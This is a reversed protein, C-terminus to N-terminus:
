VAKGMSSCRQQWHHVITHPRGRPLVVSPVPSWASPAMSGDLNRLLMNYRMPCFFSALPYRCSALDAIVDSISLMRASMAFSSAPIHAICGHMCQKFSDLTLLPSPLALKFQFSAAATTYQAQKCETDKAPRLATPQLSCNHHQQLICAACCFLFALESVSCDNGM